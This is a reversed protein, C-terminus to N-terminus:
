GPAQKRGPAPDVSKIDGTFRGPLFPLVHHPDQRGQVITEVEVLDGGIAKVFDGYDPLTAVVQLCGRTRTRSRIRERAADADNFCLLSVLFAAIILTFFTRRIM